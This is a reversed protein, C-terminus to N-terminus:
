QSVVGGCVGKKLDTSGGMNLEPELQTWSPNLNPELQTWHSSSVEKWRCGLNGAQEELEM